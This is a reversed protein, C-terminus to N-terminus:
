SFDSIRLSLDEAIEPLGSITLPCSCRSELCFFHFSILTSLGELTLM